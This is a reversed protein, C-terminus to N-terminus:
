EGEWVHLAGEDDFQFVYERRNILYAVGERPIDLARIPRGRVLELIQQWNLELM